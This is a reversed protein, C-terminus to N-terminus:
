HIYHISRHNRIIILHVSFLLKNVDGVLRKGNKRGMIQSKVSPSPSPISDLSNESINKVLHLNKRSVTFSNRRLHWCPTPLPDIIHLIHWRLNHVGGLTPPQTPSWRAHFWIHRVDFIFAVFWSGFLLIELRILTFKPIFFGLFHEEFDSVLLYRRFIKKFLFYKGFIKSLIVNNRWFTYM